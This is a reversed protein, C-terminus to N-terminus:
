NIEEIVPKGILNVSTLSRIFNHAADFEIFNLSKEVAYGYDPSTSDTVKQTFTVQFKNKKATSM